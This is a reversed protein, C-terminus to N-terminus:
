AAPSPEPLAGRLLARRRASSCAFGDLIPRIVLLARAPTEFIERISKGEAHPAPLLL